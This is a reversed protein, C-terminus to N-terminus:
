YPSGLQVPHRSSLCYRSGPYVFRSSTAVRRGSWIRRRLLICPENPEIRLLSSLDKSPHIAHIFHEVESVPAVRVLYSRTTASQFDQSLYAPVVEPNVFREEVQIPTDNELHVVVSHFANMTRNLELEAAMEGSALVTELVVVRASHRQGRLEIEEKIDSLDYLASHSQVSSVFTGVGAIRKLVGEASLERLARHVTMRAFGFKDTLENESPIRQM